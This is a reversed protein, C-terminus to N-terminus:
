IGGLDILDAVVVFYKNSAIGLWYIRVFFNSGLVFLCCKNREM